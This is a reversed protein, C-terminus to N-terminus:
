KSQLLKKFILNVQLDEKGINKRDISSFVIENNQAVKKVQKVVKKRKIQLKTRNALNNTGAHVILCDLKSKILQDINELITTSTGGPFNNVKIRHNKPMVKRTYEM